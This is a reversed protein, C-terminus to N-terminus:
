DGRGLGLASPVLTEAVLDPLADFSGPFDPILGVNGSEKVEMDGKCDWGPEAGAASPPDSGPM